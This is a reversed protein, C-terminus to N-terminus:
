LYFAQKIMSKAPESWPASPDRRTTDCHFCTIPAFEKEWPNCGYLKGDDEGRALPMNTMVCHNLAGNILYSENPFQFLAWSLVVEDTFRDIFPSNLDPYVLNNLRQIEKILAINTPSNEFFFVGGAAIPFNDNIGIVKSAEHFAKADKPETKIFFENYDQTWFHQTATFRGKSANILYDVTDNVFVTDVDVYFTYDNTQAAWRAVDYKTKWIVHDVFGGSVFIDPRYEVCVHYKNRYQNVIDKHKDLLKNGYEIIYISITHASLRELSRLSKRLNDYQHDKGGVVYCISLKAM